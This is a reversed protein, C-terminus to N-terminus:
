APKAPSLPRTQAAIAAPVDFWGLQGRYPMFEIPSAQNVPIGNPGMFWRSTSSPVSPAASARGIFGGLNYQDPLLIDQYHDRVWELDSIQERGWTKGAHVLFEGRYSSRWKRNEVDKIWGRRYLDARAAPDIVDPRVILWAWPQLISIAKM